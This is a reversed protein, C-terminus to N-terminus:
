KASEFASVAACRPILSLEGKGGGCKGSRNAFSELKIGTAFAIARRLSNESKAHM